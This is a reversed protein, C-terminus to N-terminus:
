GLTHDVILEHIMDRVGEESPPIEKYGEKTLIISQVRHVKTPSGSLGCWQLDAEVDDLDWQEIVLNRMKLTELRDAQMAGRDQDSADPMAADAERAVEGPSRARKYRMM